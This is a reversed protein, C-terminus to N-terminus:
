TKGGQDDHIPIHGADRQLGVFVYTLVTALSIFVPIVVISILVSANPADNLSISIIILRIIWWTVGGVFIWIWSLSAIQLFFILRSNLKKDTM